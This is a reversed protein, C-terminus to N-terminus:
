EITYYQKKVFAIGLLIPRATGTRNFNIDVALSDTKGLVISKDFPIMGITQDTTFESFVDYQVGLKNGATNLPQVAEIIGPSTQDLVGFVTAVVNGVLQLQPKGSVNANLNVSFYVPSTSTATNWGANSVTTTWTEVPSTAVGSYAINPTILTPAFTGTDYLGFTGGLQNNSKAYYLGAIGAPLFSEAIERFPGPAFRAVFKKNYFNLFEALELGTVTVNNISDGIAPYIGTPTGQALEVYGIDALSFNQSPANIGQRYIDELKKSMTLLNCPLYYVTKM